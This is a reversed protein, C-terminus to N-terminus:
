LSDLFTKVKFYAEKPTGSADIETLLGKDRYFDEVPICREKYVELRHAVTEPKDDARSYLESNCKDCINEKKPPFYFVNYILGCDKCERRGSIRKKVTKDDLSMKIITSVPIRHEKFFSELITAQSVNRPFGDLIFHGKTEFQERILELVIEDPLLDGKSLSDKYPLIKPNEKKIENRILEGTSIHILAYDKAIKRAITGKGAGPPGIILLNQIM